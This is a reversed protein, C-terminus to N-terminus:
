FWMQDHEFGADFGCQEFACKLGGSNRSPGVRGRAVRKISAQRDKSLVFIIYMQQKSGAIRREVDNM